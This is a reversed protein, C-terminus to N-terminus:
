EHNVTESPDLRDEGPAAHYPDFPVMGPRRANLRRLEEDGYGDASGAPLEHRVFGAIVRRAAAGAAGLERDDPEAAEDWIRFILERREALSYQGDHWVWSLLAPLAAFSRTLSDQRMLEIRLDRTEDLLWGREERESRRTEGARWRRYFKITGDKFVDAAVGEGEYHFSGNARKVMMPGDADGLRVVEHPFPLQAGQLFGSESPACRVVAREGDLGLACDRLVDLGLLGDALTSGARLPQRVEVVVGRSVQGVTVRMHKEIMGVSDRPLDLSRPAYLLSTPAGTDIVLQLFHDGVEADVVFHGSEGAAVNALLLPYRELYRLAEPWSLVRLSKDHLDMILAQGPPPLKQPSILGDCRPQGPVPPEQRDILESVVLPLPALSLDDLLAPAAVAFANHARGDVDNVAAHGMLAVGAGRAASMSWLHIPSGTDLLMAQARGAVHARVLPRATGIRQDFWIKGVAPDGPAPQARSQGPAGVLVTVM